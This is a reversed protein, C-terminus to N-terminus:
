LEVETVSINNLTALIRITVCHIIICFDPNMWLYHPVLVFSAM